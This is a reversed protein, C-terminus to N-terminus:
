EVPGGFKEVMVRHGEVAEDWTSYRECAYDDETGSTRALSEFFERGYGVGLSYDHGLFVTSIHGGKVNTYAVRYSWKSVPDDEGIQRFASWEALGCAVVNHEADMKYLGRIM